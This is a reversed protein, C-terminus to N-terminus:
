YAANPLSKRLERMFLCQISDSLELERDTLERNKDGEADFLANLVGGRLTATDMLAALIFTSETSNQCMALCNATIAEVANWRVLLEPLKGKKM